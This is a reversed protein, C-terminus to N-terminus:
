TTSRDTSATRRRRPATLLDRPAKRIRSGPSLKALTDETAPLVVKAVVTLREKEELRSVLDRVEEQGVAGDIVALRMRGRRGCFPAAAALWDRVRLQDLRAARESNFRFVVARYDGARM